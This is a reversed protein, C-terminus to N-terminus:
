LFETNFSIVIRKEQEQNTYHDFESPFIILLGSYPKIQQNSFILPVSNNGVSVYFAGSLGNTGHNHKKLESGAYTINFWSNIFKFKGLEYKNCYIRVYQRIINYLGKLEPYLLIPMGINFSSVGDSILGHSNTQTQLLIKEISQLNLFSLNYEEIM